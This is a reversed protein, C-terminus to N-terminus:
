MEMMAPAITIMVLVLLLIVLPFTLKTEAIKGKEETQKKRAIWLSDGEMKLQAMLDSGKTLSDGIINSLRMFEVVGSRVAFDRIGQQLSSNNDKFNKMISELQNYFYNSEGGRTKQYDEVIKNFANTLILGANLLLVLKNVFEPLERIITNRAEKEKKTLENDKSRYILVCAAVALFYPLSGNGQEKQKWLIPTGDDLARPLDVDGSTTDSNVRYVAKRIEHTQLEIDKQETESQVSERKDTGVSNEPQIVFAINGDTMSVGSETTPIAEVVLPSQGEEPRTVTSIYGKGDVEMQKATANGGSLQILVVLILILAAVLCLSITKKRAKSLYPGYNGPGYLKELRLRRKISDEAM